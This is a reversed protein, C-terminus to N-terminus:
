GKQARIGYMLPITPIREPPVMRRDPLERM